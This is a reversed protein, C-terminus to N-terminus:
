CDGRRHERPTCAFAPTSWLGRGADRAESVAARIREVYRVNPPYTLSVAFGGRAMEENAMRGDALWVYALTRGYRDRPEVDAELNVESQGSILDELAQTAMSGYPDQSREPTDILLLRVREGSACGITDGDVVRVVTCPRGAVIQEPDDQPRLSPNAALEEVGPLDDAPPTIAAATAPQVVAGTCESDSAIRYGIREADERTAFYVRESEPIGTTRSCGTSYVIQGRASAVWPLRVQEAGCAAVISLVAGCALAFPWSRWGRM